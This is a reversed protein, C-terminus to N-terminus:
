FVNKDKVLWVMRERERERKWGFECHNGREKVWVWSPEKERVWVWQPQLSGREHSFGMKELLMKWKRRLGTGYLCKVLSKWAECWWWQYQEMGVAKIQHWVHKPRWKQTQIEIEPNPDKNTNPNMHWIDLSCKVLGVLEVVVMPSALM